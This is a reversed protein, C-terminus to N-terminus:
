NSKMQWGNPTLVFRGQNRKPDKLVRHITVHNLGTRKTIESAKLGQGSPLSKLLMEIATAGFGKPRRQRLGVGNALPLESGNLKARLEALTTKVSNRQEQLSLIGQELNALKSELCPLMDRAAQESIEIIKQM